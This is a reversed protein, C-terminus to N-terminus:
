NLRAVDTVKGGTTNRGTFAIAGGSPSLQADDLSSVGSLKLQRVTGGATLLLPTRADTFYEVVDGHRSTVVSGGATFRADPTSHAGQWRLVSGGNSTLLTGDPLWGGEGVRTTSGRSLDVLTGSAFLWNGDPSFAADPAYGPGSGQDSVRLTTHSYSVITQLGPVSVVELWGSSSGGPGSSPHLLALQKGDQSFAIPMGAHSSGVSNGNWIVFTSQSQGWDGKSAIAVLGTGSGLLVAGSSGAGDMYNGPLTASVHGSLNLLNIKTSGGPGKGHSAAAITNSDVWTASDASFSGVLRGSSDLVQIQRQTTWGSGSSALLHAGDPAWAVPWGPLRALNTPTEPTPVTSKVPTKSTGSGPTKDSGSQQVTPSGSPSGSADYADSASSSLTPTFATASRSSSAAPNAVPMLQPLLVGVAVLVVLSLALAAPVLSRPSLSLEFGDLFGFLGTRIRKQELVAAPVAAQRWSAALLRDTLRYSAYLEKCKDCGEVHAKEAVRLSDLSAHQAAEGLRDSSVHGSRM